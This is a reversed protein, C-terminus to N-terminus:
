GLSIRYGHDMNAFQNEINDDPIIVYEQDLLRSVSKTINIINQMANSQLRALSEYALAKNKEGIFIEVNIKQEIESWGNFYILLKEINRFTLVEMEYKEFNLRYNKNDKKLDIFHVKSIPLYIVIKDNIESIYNENGQTKM